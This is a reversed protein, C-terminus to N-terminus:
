LWLEVLTELDRSDSAVDEADHLTFDGGAPIAPEECGNSVAPANHTRWLQHARHIITCNLEWQLFRLPPGKSIRMVFSRQLLLVRVENPYHLRAWCNFARARPLGYRTLERGKVFAGELRWVM